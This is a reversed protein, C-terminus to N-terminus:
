KKNSTRFLIEKEEKTLSEYGSKSIKDLIADIRDQNQKKEYNYDEDKVPRSNTYVNKFHSKKPRMFPKTLKSLSIGNFYSSVDNGKRLLYIYLFGWAAGGLHALHGGSNGSRIMLVDLVISVLAIYFIKVPGFFLLHIRYNPVYYAISVVIAMVSASAGLAVSQLSTEQFKPFIHFSIIYLCVGALGGLIYTTVLQRENLYELFIRGFWYLWLMNFLIHWFDFHLFMYTFLTWPKFLLSSLSAPVAFWGIINEIFDVKFLDFIVSLFMIFVWVVANIIILRLLMNKSKFFSKLDDLPNQVQYNGGYNNM